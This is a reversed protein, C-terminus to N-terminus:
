ANFSSMLARISLNRGNLKPVHLALRREVSVLSQGNRSPTVSYRFIYKTPKGKASFGEVQRSVASSVMAVVVMAIERSGSPKLGMDEGTVVTNNNKVATVLSENIAPLAKQALTDVKSPGEIAGM